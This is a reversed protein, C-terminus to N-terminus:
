LTVELRFKSREAVEEVKMRTKSEVFVVVAAATVQSATVTVLQLSYCCGVSRAVFAKVAM